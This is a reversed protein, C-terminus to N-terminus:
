LLHAGPEGKLKEALVAVECAVESPVTGLLDHGQDEIVLFRWPSLIEVADLVSRASVVHDREGAILSVPCRLSHAAEEVHSIEAVFAAQETLFSRRHIARRSGRLERDAWAVVGHAMLRGVGPVGFVRDAGILSSVTIAPSVLVLGVRTEALAVSALVAVAAGLSYGVLVVPDSDGRRRVIDAIWDANERLGRAELGSDGWGPRDECLVRMTEGLRRRVGAFDGAGGPQGHLFVLWPTTV